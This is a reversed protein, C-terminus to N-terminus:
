YLVKADRLARIEDPSYGLVEGLVGETDAGLVPAPMRVGNARRRLRHPIGAHARSGVEPHPLRAVFGRAELHPDEVIDRSTLTPFAAVGRAQLARTLEWRDRERTRAALEAELADEHRKRDGLSQFRGDEALEPAIELCLARWHEDSNCAISIWDDEGRTPFCGHPSMWPDRNGQRVPEEGNMAYAMWAEVSFVATAEWLSIDLHCGRGHLRRKELAACIEFAASIGANPDPMSVGVELPGGGVFGTAASLGTLPPIAPGYGMYDRYPGSQGYGSISALIIRPNREALAEYGLGLRDMVGTAFNEVVVDCTEIFDRLLLIARPEALNLSVSKKGQNWQNFMGSTNLTPEVGKPHIPLRRYLDPRAESEFRIVDAGLHALNMACFPGAWAWSLDAVRVGDLPLRTDETATAPVRAPARGLVEDDHEGLMPAGRRVELRGEPTRVACGLHRLRGAGSHEVETFFERANLHESESMQGLGMVPAACIRHKQMEQYIEFASQGALWEQVFNHLIDQNQARGLMTSFVELSAWEPHGMLGVLREWQDQEVCVLFLPGDRCEFIGWPILLRTGYRTAVLGQYAYQPIGNELVSATYAQLSLDIFEGVGTRRAASYAAMAVTAGAVGAMFGCQHGSVKLPPLDPRETAAPCLSAWGGASSVTLEEAHFDAYPGTVGFPTISLTVLDPRRRELSDADIALAEARARSCNHILVDAWDLLRLLEGRPAGSSLDLCVGRKNTNLALFLGSREADRVGDPFPGRGRSWDGEPDEVKVVDAGHDGLLRAAFAASVGAGLELVRMEAFTDHNM